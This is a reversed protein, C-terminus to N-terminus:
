LGPIKMQEESCPKCFTYISVRKIRKGKISYHMNFRANWTDGAKHDAFDKKVVMTSLLEVAAENGSVIITAPTHQENVMKFYNDLMKIIKDRGVITGLLESEIAVDEAYYKEMAEVHKGSFMLDIYDRMDKEDLTNDDQLCSVTLTVSLLGVVWLMVWSKKSISQM